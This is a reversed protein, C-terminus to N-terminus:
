EEVLLGEKLDHGIFSQFLRSQAKLWGYLSQLFLGLAFKEEKEALKIARTVFLNQTNFDKVATFLMTEPTEYKLQGSEELMTYQVFEATTTPIVEGEDLLLQNLHDFLEEEKAITNEIQRSFAKSDGKLYYNAQRLKNKQIILNALIHGCMAGATPTHHDQESQRLEAQYKEKANM